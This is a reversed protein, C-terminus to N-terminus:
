SMPIQKLLRGDVRGLIDDLSRGTLTLGHNKLGVVARTPDPSQRVVEAVAEGLEYTGCPFNFETSEIGDIWAHVHIIARVDPHEQYILWHEIADVSVRRPDCEKPVSLEICNAAEDYGKVMQVHSGVGELKAKDVGSCSMWFRREDKRASLNGYSLGGIGYLRKVHRFDQPSLIREIPFPAPLLDWEALRAGARRLDQTLEDGDWLEPELDADFRNDIVLRSSAVPHIRQAVRVALDPGEPEFFEGMELTVFTAGVGPTYAILMNSLSRILYVYLEEAPRAPRADLSALAIALTAQARRRYPVPDNLDILNLAFNPAAEGSDRQAGLAGLEARVCEFLQRTEEHPEGRVTYRLGRFLASTRANETEAHSVM